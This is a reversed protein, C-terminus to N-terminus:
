VSRPHMNYEIQDLIAQMRFVSCYGNKSRDCGLLEVWEHRLKSVIFESTVIEGDKIGVTNNCLECQESNHKM